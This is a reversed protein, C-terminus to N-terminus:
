GKRVIAMIEDSLEQVEAAREDLYEKMARINSEILALKDEILKRDDKEM